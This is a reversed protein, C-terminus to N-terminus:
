RYPSRGAPDFSEPIAYSKSAGMKLQRSVLANVTFILGNGMYWVFSEHRFDYGMYCLCALHGTM